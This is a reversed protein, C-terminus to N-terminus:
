WRETSPHQPLFTSLWLNVDKNQVSNILWYLPCTWTDFHELVSLKSSQFSSQSIVPTNDAGPSVMPHCPCPPIGKSLSVLHTYGILPPFIPPFYFLFNQASGLLTM